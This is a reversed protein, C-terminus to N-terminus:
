MVGSWDRQLTKKLFKPNRARANEFINTINSKEWEKVPHKEHIVSLLILVKYISDRNESAICGETQLLVDLELILLYLELAVSKKIKNAHGTLLGQLIEAFRVTKQRLLDEYKTDPLDECSIEKAYASYSGITLFFVLVCSTKYKM